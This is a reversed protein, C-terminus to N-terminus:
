CKIKFKSRWKAWKLKSKGLGYILMYKKNLHLKKVMQFEQQFKSFKQCKLYKLEQPRVIMVLIKLLQDQEKAGKASLIYCLEVMELYQQVQVGAHQADQPHQDLSVDIEMALRVLIEVNM